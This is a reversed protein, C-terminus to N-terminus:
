VDAYTIASDFIIRGPRDHVLSIWLFSKLLNRMASWSHIDCRKISALLLPQLWCGDGSDLVSVSSVMLFWIYLAPPVRRPELQVLCTELQSGLHPYPLGLQRWPLFVSSSFALLALLIAEESSSAEFQMGLLPYVISAMSQLFIQTTILQGSDAALNIVSCFESMRKWAQALEDIMNLLPIPNIETLDRSTLLSALDPYPLISEQDKFFTPTLGSYLAISIDTRYWKTEAVFGSLCFFPVM